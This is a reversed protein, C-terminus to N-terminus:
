SSIIGCSLMEGASARPEGPLLLEKAGMPPAEHPLSGLGREGVWRCVNVCCPPPSSARFLCSPM